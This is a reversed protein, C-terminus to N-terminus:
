EKNGVSKRLIAVVGEQPNFVLNHFAKELGNRMVCTLVQINEAGLTLYEAADKGTYVGGTASVPMNLGRKRVEKIQEQNIRKLELGGHSSGYEVGTERDTFVRYVRNAVTVGDSRGAVAARVMEVQFELGFDLNLIKPVVKVDYPVDRLVRPAERYWRLVTQKDEARDEGELFPCFDIEFHRYGIECMKGVTYTWEEVNWEDEPGSVLHCLVSAILPMGTRRGVDYAKRAFELYDMLNRTDLGGNWHVTPNRGEPDLSEDVYWRMFTPKRRLFRMSAGGNRDEGVVSKLVVAGYGAKFAREVQSSTQSLPGPALIIPNRLELDLYRASLDIGLEELVKEELGMRGKEVLYEM